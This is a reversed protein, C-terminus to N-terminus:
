LDTRLTPSPLVCLAYHIPPQRDSTPLPSCKGLVTVQVEAQDSGNINEATVLYLGSDARTAGRVSIKTNYDVHTIKVTESPRIEKGKMLWRTRPVPEGTVKCDFVFSQGAKIRLDNLNARDIHPALNRPKAVIVPTANSPEGPGAKNVARVRFEYPQGEVQM